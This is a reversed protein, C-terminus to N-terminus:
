VFRFPTQEEIKKFAALLAENKIELKVEVSSIKQSKVSLAFLLQLTTLLLGISIFGIRLLQNILIKRNVNVSFYNIRSTGPANITFYKM